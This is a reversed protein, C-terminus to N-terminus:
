MCKFSSILTPCLYQIPMLSGLYGVAKELIPTIRKDQWEFPKNIHTPSFSEYAFEKGQFHKKYRGSNYKYRKAM